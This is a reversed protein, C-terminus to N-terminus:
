LSPWFLFISQLGWPVPSWSYPIIIQKDNDPGPYIKVCSIRQVKLKFYKTFYTKIINSSSLPKFKQAHIFSQM